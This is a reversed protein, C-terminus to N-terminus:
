KHNTRSEFSTIKAMVTGFIGRSTTPSENQETQIESEDNTSANTQDNTLDGGIVTTNSTDSGESTADQTSNTESNEVYSEETFNDNRQSQKKARQSLKYDRYKKVRPLWSGFMEHEFRNSDILLGVYDLYNARANECEVRIHNVDFCNNCITTMGRYAVRIKKGYMPLYSPIQRALQLLISLDGTAMDPCDRDMIDQPENLILGFKSMWNTIQEKTLDFECGYLNVRTPRPQSSTMRPTQKKIGLIRGCIIDFSGDPKQAGRNYSFDDRPFMDDINIKEKLRFVIQLPKRPISKFSIGHIAEREKGLINSWIYLAEPMKFSGKFDEGNITLIEFNVVDTTGKNWTGAFSCESTTLYRPRQSQSPQTESPIYSQKEQGCNMRIESLQQSINLSLDMEPRDTVDHRKTTSNEPSELCRKNTKQQTKEGLAEKLAEEM